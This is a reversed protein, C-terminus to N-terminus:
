DAFMDEVLATDLYATVDVIQGEPGFGLVWCYTQDYPRGNVGRSTGSWQLIVTDGADHVAQVTAIIPGALRGTLKGVIGLFSAKDTYTGSLATSGIVRWTVTPAVLRFFPASDGQEWGAFATRVADAPSPSSM